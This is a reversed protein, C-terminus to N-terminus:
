TNLNFIRLCTQHVKVDRRECEALPVDVFAEVFDGDAFLERAHRRESRFPSILSVLVISGADVMLKAVEAVRGINEARDDDTFGM